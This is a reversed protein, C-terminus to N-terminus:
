AALLSLAQRAREIVEPLTEAVTSDETELGKEIKRLWKKESDKLGEQAALGRPDEVYSLLRILDQQDSDFKEPREQAM